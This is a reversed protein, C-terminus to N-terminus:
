PTPVLSFGVSKASQLPYLTENIEQLFCVGIVPLPIGIGQPLTSPLLELSTRTDDRSLLIPESSHRAKELTHFDFELIGYRLQVYDAGKPFPIAQVDIGSIHTRFREPDYSLDFPLIRSVDCDPTYSHSQLLALGQPHEMGAGVRRKGRRNDTDLDKLRTFLSMLRRNLYKFHYEPFFAEVGLRFRRNVYSCHGFETANELVRKMNPDNFIAERTFGGGATKALNHNGKRTNKKDQYFNIGGLTGIFTIIGTQRAM